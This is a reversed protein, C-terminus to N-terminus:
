PSRNSRWAKVIVVMVAVVVFDGSGTVGESLEVSEPACRVCPHPHRLGAGSEPGQRWSSEGTTVPIAGEPVLLADVTNGSPAPSVVTERGENAVRVAARLRVLLYVPIADGRGAGGVLVVDAGCRPRAWGPDRWSPGWGRRCDYVETDIAPAVPPLRALFVTCVVYCQVPFHVTGPPCKWSPAACGSACDLRGEDARCSSADWGSTHM